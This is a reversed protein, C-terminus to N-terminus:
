ERCTRREEGCIKEQGGGTILPVIETGKRLYLCGVGKPGYLKHASISLMDCGLKEVDVPIRGAAQVADCHFVIGRERLIKGIEEVPQITGIENNAHMISVLITDPRIARGVEGSDVMGSEDVPLFTVDFGQSKLFKCPELVARHEIASTIIHRGKGM